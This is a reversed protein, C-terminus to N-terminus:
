DGLAVLAGVPQFYPHAAAVLPVIVERRSKRMPVVQKKMKFSRGSAVDDQARFAALVGRRLGKQVGAFKRDVKRLVLFGAAGINM